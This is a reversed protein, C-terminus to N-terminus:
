ARGGDGRGLLMSMKRQYAAQRADDIGAERLTDEPTITPAKARELELAARQSNRRCSAHLRKAFARDRAPAGVRGAFFGVNRVVHWYIPPLLRALVRLCRLMAREHPLLRGITEFEKPTLAVSRRAM